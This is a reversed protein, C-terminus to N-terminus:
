RPRAAGHPLPIIYRVTASAASISAACRMAGSARKRSSPSRSRRSGACTRAAICSTRRNRIYIGFASSPTSISGIVDIDVPRARGSPRLAFAAGTHGKGEGQHEPGRNSPM